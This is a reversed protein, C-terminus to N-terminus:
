WPDKGEKIREVQVLFLSWAQDKFTTMVPTSDLSLSRDPGQSKEQDSEEDGDRIAHVLAVGLEELSESGGKEQRAEDALAKEVEVTWYDDLFNFFDGDWSACAKEFQDVLTELLGIDEQESHHIDRIEAEPLPDHPDFDSFL